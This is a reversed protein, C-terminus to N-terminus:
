VAELVPSVPLLGDLFNIDGRQLDKHPPRRCPFKPYVTHAENLTMGYDYEVFKPFDVTQILIVCYCILLFMGNESEAQVSVKACQKDTTYSSVWVVLLKFM